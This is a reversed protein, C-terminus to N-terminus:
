KDKRGRNDDRGRPADASRGNGRDLRNPEALNAGCEIRFSNASVNGALLGGEETIVMALYIDQQLAPDCDVKIMTSASAGFATLVQV